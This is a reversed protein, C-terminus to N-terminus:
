RCESLHGPDRNTGVVGAVFELLMEDTDQRAIPVDDGIESGVACRGDVIRWNACLDPARNAIALGIDADHETAAPLTLLDRGVLHAAHARRQAVVQVGCPEGTRM